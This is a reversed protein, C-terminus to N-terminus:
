FEFDELDLSINKNMAFSISTNKIDAKYQQLSGYDDIINKIESIDCIRPGLETDLYEFISSKVLQKKLNIKHHKYNLNVYTSVTGLADEGTLHKAKFRGQFLSGSRKHSHNFVKVYSNCLRHMFKTIGNESEQKLLLHFHNPLLCYAIISVLKENDDLVEKGKKRKMRLANSINTTNLDNLRNFFLYLEDKNTFIDRKDVGRNFVHYCEGKTLPVKRITM